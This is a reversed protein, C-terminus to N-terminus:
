GRSGPNMRTLTGSVVWRSEEHKSLNSRTYEQSSPCDFHFLLGAPSHWIISLLKKQLVCLFSPFYRLWMFGTSNLYVTSEAILCHTQKREGELISAKWYWISAQKWPESPKWSSRTHISCHWMSNQLFSKEHNSGTNFPCLRHTGKNGTMITEFFNIKLFYKEPFQHNIRM